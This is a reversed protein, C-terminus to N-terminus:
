KAMTNENIRIEVSLQNRYQSIARLKTKFHMMPTRSHMNKPICIMPTRSHMNKPIKAWIQDHTEWIVYLCCTNIILSFRVM